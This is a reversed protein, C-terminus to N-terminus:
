LKLFDSKFIFSYTIAKQKRLQTKFNYWFIKHNRYLTFFLNSDM